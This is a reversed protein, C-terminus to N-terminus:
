RLRGKPFVNRGVLLLDLTLPNAAGLYGSINITFSDNPIFIWRINKANLTQQNAFATGTNFNFFKGPTTFVEFPVNQNQHRANKTDYLLEFNLNNWTGPLAAGIVPWQVIIKQLYYYHRPRTPFTLSIVPTTVDTDVQRYIWYPYSNPNPLV